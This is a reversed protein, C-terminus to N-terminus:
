KTPDTETILRRQEEIANLVGVRNKNAKEEAEIKDLTPLDNTLDIIAKADAVNLETVIFLDNDKSPDDEDTVKEEERASANGKDTLPNPKNSEDANTPPVDGPPIPSPLDGETYWGQKKLEEFEELSSCSRPMTPAHVPHYILFM